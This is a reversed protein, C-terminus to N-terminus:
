SSVNLAEKMQLSGLDYREPSFDAQRKRSIGLSFNAIAEKGIDRPIPGSSLSGARSMFDAMDGDNRM